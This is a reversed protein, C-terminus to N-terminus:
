KFQQEDSIRRLEEADYYATKKDINSRHSPSIVNLVGGRLQEFFGGAYKICYGKTKKYRRLVQECGAIAGDIIEEESAKKHISAYYKKVFNKCIEFSLEWLKNWAEISHEVLYDYQYNILMDGTTKPDEVYPIEKTKEDHNESEYSSISQMRQVLINKKTNKEQIDFSTNKCLEVCEWGRCVFLM